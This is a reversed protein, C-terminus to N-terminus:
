TSDSLHSDELQIDVIRTCTRVAACALQVLAQWGNTDLCCHPHTVPLGTIRRFDLCNPARPFVHETSEFGKRVQCVPAMEAARGLEFRDRGTIKVDHM